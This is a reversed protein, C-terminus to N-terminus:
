GAGCERPWGQCVSQRRKSGRERIPIGELALETAAPHGDDVEGPIELV